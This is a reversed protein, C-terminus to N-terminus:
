DVEGVGYRSGCNDCRVRFIVEGCRECKLTGLSWYIAGACNSDVTHRLPDETEECNPCNLVAARSM